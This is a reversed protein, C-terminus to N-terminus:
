SAWNLDKKRFQQCKPLLNLNHNAHFSHILIIKIATLLATKVIQRLLGVM